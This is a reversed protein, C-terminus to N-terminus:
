TQSSLGGMFYAQNQNATIALGATSTTNFVQIYDGAVLQLNIVTVSASANPGTVIGGQKCVSGNKYLALGAAYDGANNHSLTATFDYFGNVPATFKGTSISYNSGTDYEEVNFVTAAFGGNDFNTATTLYASFKYPNYITALSYGTGGVAGTFTSTGTVALTSGLTAAGTVGLTTGVTAAGTITAANTSFGGTNTIATTVPATLTKNTLTQTAALVVLTDSTDPLTYTRLNGSTIGSLQFQAQKTNDGNDDLTFNSDLVTISNTIGLTKNTPSQTDSLGLPQSALGLLTNRSIGQIDTASNTYILLRDNVPDISNAVPLSDVTITTATQTM